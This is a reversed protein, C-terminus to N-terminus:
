WLLVDGAFIEAIHGSFLTAPTAPLETSCLLVITTVSISYMVKDLLDVDCFDGHCMGGLQSSGLARGAAATQGVLRPHHEGPAAFGRFMDEVDKHPDHDHDRGRRRARRRAVAAAVLSTTTQPRRLSASQRDPSSDSRGFGWEEADVSGQGGGKPGVEAPSMATNPRRWSSSGPSRSLRGSDFTAHPLGSPPSPVSEGIGYGYRLVSLEGAVGKAMELRSAKSQEPSPSHRQVSYPRVGRTMICESSRVLWLKGLADEVFELVLNLVRAVSYAEIWEVIVKCTHNLKQNITSSKCPVRKSDGKVVAVRYSRHVVKASGLELKFTHQISLLLEACPAPARAKTPVLLVLAETGAPVTGQGKRIKELDSSKVAVAEGSTFAVAGNTEGVAELAGLYRKSPRLHQAVAKALTICGDDEGIPKLAM